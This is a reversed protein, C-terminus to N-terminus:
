SPISGTSRCRSCWFASLRATKRSAGPSSAPRAGHSPAYAEFDFFHKAGSPGEAAARFANGLDTASWPGDAAFSTAFDEEKFVTYVLDGAMNFLFIDYYGRETLFARFWPHYRAHVQDYSTGTEAADLLHKKGLEHPNGTIYASKLAATRDGEIADFAEAFARTAQQTFPLESVLLLDAEIASLYDSLETVRSQAIATLRTETLNRIEKAASFYSSLGIGAGVSLAVGLIAAPIKFRISLSNWM